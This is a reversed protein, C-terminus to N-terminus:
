VRQEHIPSIRKLLEYLPDNEIFHQYYSFLGLAGRLERINRPIPYNEIKEVKEPNPKVGDKGVVHKLFQLESAGFHCKKVKLRLNVRRIRNLVDEIHRLHEEFSKSYIIVDDFYVMVYKHISDGLVKNMIRQFTAPANCLGFPM